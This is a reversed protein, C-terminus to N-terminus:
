QFNQYNKEIFVSADSLSQETGIDIFPAVVEIVKISVNQALLIPFVDV